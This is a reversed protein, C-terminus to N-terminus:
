MVEVLEVEFMLTADPPIVTGAGRSGYGWDPPIILVRKGGVKMNEFGEDWGKIVKGGGLLFTFPQRDESTDFQRGRGMPKTPDYIWGTYNVTIKRGKNAVKGTGVVSDEVVLKKVEKPFPSAPDTNKAPATKKAETKDTKTKDAETANAPMGGFFSIVLSSFLVSLFLGYLSGWRTKLSKASALNMLQSELTTGIVTGHPNPNKERASAMFKESARGKHRREGCEQITDM